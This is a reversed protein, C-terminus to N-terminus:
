MNIMMMIKENKEVELMLFHNTENPKEVESQHLGFLYSSHCCVHERLGPTTERWLALHRVWQCALHRTICGSKSGSALTYSSDAMNAPVAWLIKSILASIIAKTYLKIVLIKCPYSNISRRFSVSPISRRHLFSIPQSRCYQDSQNESLQFMCLQENVCTWQHNVNWRM